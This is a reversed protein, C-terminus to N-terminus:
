AADDFVHCDVEPIAYDYGDERESETARDIRDLDVLWCARRLNEKPDQRDNRNGDDYYRVMAAYSRGQVHRIEPELDCAFYDDACLRTLVRSMQSPDNEACRLRERTM